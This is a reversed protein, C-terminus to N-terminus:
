SPKPIGNCITEIGAQRPPYVRENAYRPLLSAPHVPKVTNIQRVAPTTVHLGEPSRFLLPIKLFSWPSQSGYDTFLLLVIDHESRRDSKKMAIGTMFLVLRLGGTAGVPLVPFDSTHLFSIGHILIGEDKHSSRLRQNDCVYRPVTAIDFM